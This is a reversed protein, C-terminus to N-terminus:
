IQGPKKADETQDANRVRLGKLSLKKSEALAAKLLYKYYGKGRYSSIIAAYMITAYPDIVDEEIIIYGVKKKNIHLNITIM